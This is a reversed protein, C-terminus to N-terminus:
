AAPSFAFATAAVRPIGSVRTVGGGALSVLAFGDVDLVLLHEQDPLWAIGSLDDVGTETLRRLVGTELDAVWVWGIAGHARAEGPGLRLASPADRRLAGPAGEGAAFAIRRGDPSFRAHALFGLGPVPADVDTSAVQYSMGDPLVHTLAVVPVGTVSPGTAGITAYSGDPSAAIEVADQGSSIVSAHGTAADVRLVASEVQGASGPVPRRRITYLSAGGPAWTASVLTENLAERRVLPAPQPSPAGARVAMVDGSPWPIGGPATAGTAIRFQIHTFSLTEGDPSWAPDQLWGGTGAALRKLGDGEALWLANDALLALRGPPLAAQARAARPRLHQPDVLHAGSGLM